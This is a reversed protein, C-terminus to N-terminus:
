PNAPLFGFQKLRSKTVDSRLFALFELAADSPSQGIVAVPYEIRPHSESPFLGVLHVEALSAADTAYVVGLRTEGLHVLTLAARVNDVQVVQDRLDDWLELYELAAKGYEGAPVATVLGMAIRDPGELNSLVPEVDASQDDESSSVLALRNGALQFRNANEVWGIIELHDMWQQNASVFVDVPAGLEIQRALLSSGAFNVQASHGTEAEFDRVLTDFVPKLSAAASVTITDALVPTTSSVFLAACTGRWWM